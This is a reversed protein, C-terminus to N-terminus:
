NEGDVINTLDFDGYSHKFDIGAERTVDTFVPKAGDSDSASVPVLALVLGVIGPYFWRLLRM